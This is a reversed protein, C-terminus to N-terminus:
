VQTLAYDIADTAINVMWKIQEETVIYPTNFYVIGGLPRILLGHKMAYDFMKLGIRSEWSFPTRTAKDKVVEIATIMGTQRVQAVNPHDKLPATYKAFAQILKQNNNIVDDERFISLTALAASCALANGTYSHSHLFVSEPHYERYFADYVKKSTMCVSMPLYGGTLAKSLCLFDPVMDAQEHAFMTGTRGFGVAIEDLIIHVNYQDCLARLKTLYLPSHMRMGGACQVLPELIVAAIEHHHDHILAEMEAFRKLTYAEETEDEAKEYLDPATVKFTDFLMSKYSQTYLPADGVSMAGVTEGHYSNTFTVFKNKTPEGVNRWYHMSMKLASEICSSGNDAYFCYDLGDRTISVLEESLRIMPEHTFGAMIVHELQDLQDKVAQNIKPNAHGFVNVWWSSIGDLYKNDDFDYLWVGEGRKIPVLPYTEHDKMQTCPHWVVSLDRQMWKQNETM